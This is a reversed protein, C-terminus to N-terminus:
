KAFERQHSEAYRDKIRSASSMKALGWDGEGLGERVDVLKNIEAKKGKLLEQGFSAENDGLTARLKADMEALIKKGADEFQANSISMGFTKSPFLPNAQYEGPIPTVPPIPSPLSPYISSVSATTGKPLASMSSRHQVYSSPAHVSSLPAMTRREKLARGNPSFFPLSDLEPQHDAKSPAPPPSVLRITSPRELLRITSHRRPIGVTSAPSPPLDDMEEVPDATEAEKAAKDLQSSASNSGPLLHKSARRSLSTALARM